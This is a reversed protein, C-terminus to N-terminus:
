AMFVSFNQVSIRVEIVAFYCTCWGLSEFTHYKYKRLSMYAVVLTPIYLVVAHRKCTGSRQNVVGFPYHWGMCRRQFSSSLVMKWWGDVRRVETWRVTAWSSPDLALPPKGSSWVGDDHPSRWIDSFPFGSSANWETRFASRGKLRRVTTQREELIWTWLWRWGNRDRTSFRYRM